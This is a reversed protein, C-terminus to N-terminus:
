NTYFCEYGSTTLQSPASTPRSGGGRSEMWSNASTALVRVGSNEGMREEPMVAVLIEEKSNQRTFDTIRLTDKTGPHAVTLWGQSSTM